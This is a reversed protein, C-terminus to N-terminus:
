FLELEFSEKKLLIDFNVSQPALSDPDVSTRKLILDAVVRNIASSVSDVESFIIASFEGCNRIASDARGSTTAPFAVPREMKRDSLTLLWATKIENRRLGAEQCSWIVDDRFPREMYELTASLGAELFSASKQDLTLERKTETKRYTSDVVKQLKYAIVLKGGSSGSRGGSGGELGAAGISNNPTTTQIGAFSTNSNNTVFNDVQLAETVYPIGPLFRIDGINAPRVITLNSAEILRSIEMGAAASPGLNYLLAIKAAVKDTQSRNLHNVSQEEVIDTIGSEKTRNPMEDKIIWEAGIYPKNIPLKLTRYEDGFTSEVNDRLGKNLSPTSLCGSLTFLLLHLLFIILTVM